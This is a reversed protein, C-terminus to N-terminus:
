GQRLVFISVYPTTATSSSPSLSHRVSPSQWQAQVGKYPHPAPASLLLCTPAPAPTASPPPPTGSCAGFGAQCGTGCHGTTTGCWGTFPLISVCPPIKGTLFPQMCGSKRKTQAPDQDSVRGGFARGPCLVTNLEQLTIM